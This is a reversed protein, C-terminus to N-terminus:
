RFLPSDVHVCITNSIWWDFMNHEVKPLYNSIIITPKPMVLRPKIYKGTIIFPDGGIYSRWDIKKMDNFDDFIRYACTDTFGDPNMNGKMYDHVGLSRAWQTKGMRSPGWIVLTLPRVQQMGINWWDIMVRPVGEFKKYPPAYVPLPPPPFMKNIAAEINIHSRFYDQPANHQIITRVERTDWSVMAHMYVDNTTMHHHVTLDGWVEGEKALYKLLRELDRKTNPVKWIECHHRNIDFYRHHTIRQIKKYFLLAHIIPDMEIDNLVHEITIQQYFGLILNMSSSESTKM